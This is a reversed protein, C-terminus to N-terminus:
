AGALRYLRVGGVSKGSGGTVRAAFEEVAPYDGRRQPVVLIATVGLERLEERAREAYRDGPAPRGALLDAAAEEFLNEPTEFLIEHTPDSSLFSGGTTRYAMGSDAQWLIPLAGGIWRGTPRPVTVVVDTLRLHDGAEAFFAPSTAGAARAPEVPLWSGVAVVTLAAGAVRRGRHRVHGLRDIWLAVVLAVCLAVFVQLRVPEAVSLLPVDLLLQWPLWVQLDRQGTTLSSGLSFVFTVLGVVAVVRVAATRATVWAVVLLLLMAVGVYGGQEGVYANLRDSAGSTGGVTMATPLVANLPDGAVDLTPRIQGAPRVPGFLVLYLPYACTVLVTPVCGAAMWGITPLRERVAGPRHCALVVGTILLVLAGLAVTQTYLGMQVALALGLLVGARVPRRPPVVFLARAAILLVPPLVAWVLNLHGVGFHALMYPSFGYLGGAVIRSSWRETFLATAAAMLVASVVLGLMMAVNYAAVPGALLTVPLMLVALAPVSINWMANVGYPHHVYDTVLPDHGRELAVPLWALWWVFTHSDASQWGMSVRDLRGLVRHGLFLAGLLYLGAAAVLPHVRRRTRAPVAPRHVAVVEATVM